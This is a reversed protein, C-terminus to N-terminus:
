GIVIRLTSTCAFVMEMAEPLRMHLSRSPALISISLRPIKCPDGVVWETIGHSYALKSYTWRPEYEDGSMKTYNKPV